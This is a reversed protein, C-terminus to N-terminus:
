SIETLFEMSPVDDIEHWMPNHKEPKDGFHYPTIGLIWWTVGDTRFTDSDLYGESNEYISAYYRMSYMCVGPM